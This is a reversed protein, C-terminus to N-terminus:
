KFQRTPGRHSFIHSCRSPSSAGSHPPVWPPKEGERFLLLLTVSPFSKYPHSQSALLSPLQSWIYLLYFILLFLSLPLSLTHESRFLSLFLCASIDARVMTWSCYRKWHHLENLLVASCIGTRAQRSHLWLSTCLDKSICSTSHQSVKQSSM